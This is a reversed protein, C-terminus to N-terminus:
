QVTVSVPSTLEGENGARDVASARYRYTLGPVLGQDLYELAEVPEENIKRFAVQGLDQRYLHYGLTDADPSAEWVVRVQGGEALLILNRPPSPAFRDAYDIEQERSLGSELLPDESALSRVTYIYRKGYRASTDLYQRASAALRELPEGYSREQAERRYVQFGVAEPADSEWTLGIGEQTAIVRVSHPPALPEKLVLEVLNSFDSSEGGSAVTRIAFVHLEPEQPFREALLVRASIRAGSTASTLEAGEVSLLRSAAQAFARPDIAPFATGSEPPPVILEWIEVADLGPLPLGGITTQPYTLEFFLVTGQQHISLDTTAM